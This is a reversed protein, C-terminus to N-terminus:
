SSSIYDVVDVASVVRQTSTDFVIATVKLTRKNSLIVIRRMGGNQTDISVAENPAVTMPPTITQSAITQKCIGAECGTQQYEFRRVVEGYLGGGLEGDVSTVRLIQNNGLSIIGTDFVFRQPPEANVTSDSKLLGLTIASLTLAISLIIKRKM